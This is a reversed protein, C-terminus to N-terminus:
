TSCSPSCRRSRSRTTSTSTGATASSSRRARADRPPQRVPLLPREARGDAHEVGPLRARRHPLEGDRAGRARVGAGDAHRRHGRRSHGDRARAARAGLLLRARLSLPLARERRDHVPDGGADRSRAAPRARAAPVRHRQAPAHEARADHRRRHRAPRDGRRREDDPQDPRGGPQARLLRALAGAPARLAAQAPRRPDARRGLRDHVDRRLDHGLERPRPRRLPSRRRRAPHRDHRQDRRRARVERPASPRARDGDRRPPLLRLPLHPLPVAEDLRWLM